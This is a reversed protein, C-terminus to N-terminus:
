VLWELWRGHSEAYALLETQAQGRQYTTLEIQPHQQHSFWEQSIRYFGRQESFIRLYDLIQERIAKPMQVMTYSHFVCLTLDDPVNDLISPLTEAANGEIIEVPHLRLQELAADLQARRDHHEPWILAKLWRTAEDDNPDIPYIEAGIRYSVQSLLLPIPPRFQGRIETKIKVLAQDNGVQGITGYDYHFQDWILHIGASAGIEVIALPKSNARQYILNFAPLLASCRTVENTQVRKLTVLKEIAPAYELCFARFDPYSDAIPRPSQTLDPYFDVLPHKTGELLLFHVAGFLLNTVQTSLDAQAVLALIEPDDVIRGALYAYLPSSNANPAGYIEKSHSAFRLALNHLLEETVPVPM